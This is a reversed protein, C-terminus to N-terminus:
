VQLFTRQVITTWADVSPQCTVPERARIFRRSVSGKTHPPNDSCRDSCQVRVTPVPPLGHRELSIRAPARPLNLLHSRDEKAEDLALLLLPTVEWLRKGVGAALIIAKM